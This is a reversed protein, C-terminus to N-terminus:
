PPPPLNLWIQDTMLCMHSWLPLLNFRASAANRPIPGRRNLLMTQATNHGLTVLTIFYVNYKGEKKWSALPKGSPQSQNQSHRPGESGRTLKM